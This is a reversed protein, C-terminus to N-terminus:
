PTLTLLPARRLPPVASTREPTAEDCAFGCFRRPSARDSLAEALVGDSLDNWTALLLARPATGRPPHWASDARRGGRQRPHARVM